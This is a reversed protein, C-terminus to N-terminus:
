QTRNSRYFSIVDVATMTHPRVACAAHEFAVAFHLPTSGDNNAGNADAGMALLLEVCKEAGHSVAGIM